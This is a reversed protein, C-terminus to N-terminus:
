HEYIALLSTQDTYIERFYNRMKSTRQLNISHERRIVHFNGKRYRLSTQRPSNQPTFTYIVYGFGQQAHNANTHALTAEQGGGGGMM